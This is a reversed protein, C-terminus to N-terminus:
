GRGPRRAFYEICSMITAILSGSTEQVDFTFSPHRPPMLCREVAQARHARRGASWHRGTHRRRTLTAFPSPWPQILKARGNQTPMVIPPQGSMALVGHILHDWDADHPEDERYSHDCAFAAARARIALGAPTFAPLAMIRRAPADMADTMDDASPNTQRYRDEIQKIEDLFAAGDPALGEKHQRRFDEAPARYAEM